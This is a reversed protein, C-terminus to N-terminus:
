FNANNEKRKLVFQVRESESSAPKFTFTDYCKSVYLSTKDILDFYDNFRYIKQKHVEKVMTGDSFTIEFYNYHIRNKKNYNSKQNFLIGNYKGSRNLYRVYKLSNKELSVDFTLSGEESLCKGVENFFKQLSTRSTIYNISDFTSFIFDFEYNFPLATMDACVRSISNSRFQNLMHLSYDCTIYNKFKKNLIEAIKGTGCAIELINEPKRKLQNSLEFIYGAWKEYDISRMLHSYIFSINKYPKELMKKNEIESL